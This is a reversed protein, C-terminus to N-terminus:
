LYPLPRGRSTYTKRKTKVSNLFLMTLGRFRALSVPYVDVDYLTCPVHVIGCARSAHHSSLADADFFRHPVACGPADCTAGGRPALDSGIPYSPHNFRLGTRHPDKWRSEM